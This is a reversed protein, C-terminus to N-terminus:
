ASAEKRAKRKARQLLSETARVTTDMAAAIDAVSLGEVYRLLLASQERESLGALLDRADSDVSTQDRHVDDASVLRLRRQERQDSRIHNFHRRRMTTVLWGVGIHEVDGDRATRALQLFTEHVLDEAAARDARTLRYASRFVTSITAEYCEVLGARTSVDFRREDTGTANM